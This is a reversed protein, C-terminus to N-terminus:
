HTQKFLYIDNHYPLHPLSSICIIRVLPWDVVDSVQSVKAWISINKWYLIPMENGNAWDSRQPAM